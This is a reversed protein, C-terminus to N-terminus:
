ILVEGINKWRSPEIIFNHVGCVFVKSIFYRSLEPLFSQSDTLGSLIM